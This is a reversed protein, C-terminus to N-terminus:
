RCEKHFAKTSGRVVGREFTRAPKRCEFCVPTRSEACDAHGCDREKCPFRGGHETCEYTGARRREVWPCGSNCDKTM